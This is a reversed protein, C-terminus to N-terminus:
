RKGGFAGGLAGALGGVEFPKKLEFPKGDPLTGHLELTKVQMRNFDFRRGFGTTFSNLPVQLRGGAAIPPVRGRYSSNLWIEVNTWDRSTRNDVTLLNRELRLPEDAAPAGCAAWVTACAVCALVGAALGRLVM